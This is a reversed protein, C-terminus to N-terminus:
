WCARRLGQAIVMVGNFTASARIGIVLLATLGVILLAHRAPQHGRRQLEINHAADITIPATSLQRPLTM